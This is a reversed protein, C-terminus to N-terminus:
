NWLNNPDVVVYKGEKYEQLSQDIKIMFEEDYPCYDEKIKFFPLSLFDELFKKAIGNKEDYEIVVHTM